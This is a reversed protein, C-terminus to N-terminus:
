TLNRSHIVLNANIAIQEPLGRSSNHNSALFAASTDEPVNEAVMRVDVKMPPFNMEKAFLFVELQTPKLKM